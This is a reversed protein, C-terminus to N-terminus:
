GAEKAYAREEETLHSWIFDLVELLLDDLEENGVQRNGFEQRRRDVYRYFLVDSNPLGEPQEM